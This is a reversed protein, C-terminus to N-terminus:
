VLEQSTISLVSKGWRQLWGIGIGPIKQLEAFSQPQTLAVYKLTVLHPIQLQKLQLYKKFILPNPWLGQRQSQQRSKLCNDCNGCAMTPDGFYRALFQQRCNKTLLFGRLHQMKQPHDRQTASLELQLRWDIDSAFLVVKAPLGDRSARGIEQTYNELNAPLQFHILLRITPKDIGMGFANTAIMCCEVNQFFQQQVKQRECATMGGHYSLIIKTSHLSLQHLTHALLEVETRTACYILTTGELNSHLLALVALLKQTFTNRFHVELRLNKRTTSLNIIIPTLLELQQCIERRVASTATATLAMVQPKKPLQKLWSGLKLYSPRFDYGWLSLCHAEDIVVLCITQKTLILQCQKSLLKEPSLYLFRLQHTSLQTIVNKEEITSLQSHWARASINKQTLQRVQDVMLAILPTVVITVGPKLLGPVQFCLSKGGGTPLVALIDQGAVAAEIIPLQHPRFEALGFVKRLIQTAAALDPV